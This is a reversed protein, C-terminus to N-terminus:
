PVIVGSFKLKTKKKSANSTVTVTRNFEGRRGSPNFTITIVGTAGPAIPEKPYSPKTCGCGGNTVGVILLPSEGTNTFTYECTVRGGSSKITGFDHSTTNFTIVPKGQASASLATLMLTVFLTFLISKNLRM